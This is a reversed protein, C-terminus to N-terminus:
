NMNPSKEILKCCFRFFTHIYFLKVLGFFLLENAKNIKKCRIIKLDFSSGSETLYSGCIRASFIIGSVSICRRRVCMIVVTFRQKCVSFWKIVPRLHQLYEKFHLKTFLVETWEVCNGRWLFNFPLWGDNNHSLFVRLTISGFKKVKTFSILKFIM